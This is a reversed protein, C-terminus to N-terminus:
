DSRRTSTLLTLPPRVVDGLAAEYGDIMRSLPFEAEIRRRAARGLAARRAPEALLEGVARALVGDDAAPVLVGASGDRGVLEPTGGADAAVVPCACAM